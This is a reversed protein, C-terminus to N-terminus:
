LYVTVTTTIVTKTGKLATDVVAVENETKTGTGVNSISNSVGINVMDTKVGINSNETSVGISSSSTSEGTASIRTSSGVASLDLSVGVASNNNSAGTASNNNSAGTASSSTSAGVASAQVSVGTASINSSIGTASVSNRMGTLSVDLGMGLFSLSNSVGTSSINGSSATISTNTSTGTLSTNQSIDTTSNNVSKHTYDKRTSTGSMTSNSYSSISTSQNWSHDVKSISKSEKADQQNYSCGISTSESLVDDRGNEATSYNSSGGKSWSVDRLHVGSFWGSVNADGHNYKNDVWSKAPPLKGPSNLGFRVSLSDGYSTSYNSGVSTNAQFGSPTVTMRGNSQVISQIEPLESHDNARSVQVVTGLEPVTLMHQALKIWVPESHEHATAFRVYIGKARLTKEHANRDTIPSTEPDFATKKYYRWDQPPTGNDHKIVTALVMGQQTDSISFPAVQGSAVTAKFQNKYTGGLEANHQVQNLVFQADGLTPRIEHPTVDPRGAHDLTFRYGPRMKPCTSSGQLSISATNRTTDCTQTDWNVETDSGGYQCIQFRKFPLDGLPGKTKSQYTEYQAITDQEWAAQQNALINSIGTSTMTQSYRYDLVLDDQDLGLPDISTSAYRLKRGDELVEPYAPRNAFVIRHHTAHHEFYYYIHAKQTLRNIFDLDSEGAQLWDQIRSVAPNDTGSIGSLSVSNTTHQQSSKLIRHDALVSRIAGKISLRHHLHYRNTLSLKWLAPRMTLHYVGPVGMAFDTAIGNWLSLRQESGGKIARAFDNEKADALNVGVTVPRTLIDQFRFPKSQGVQPHAHLELQFEFPGSIQESGSFKILRFSEDSLITGDSLFIAVHQTLDHQSIQSIQGRGLQEAISAPANM